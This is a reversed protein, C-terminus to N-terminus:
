LATTLQFRYDVMVIWGRGYFAVVTPIERAHLLAPTLANDMCPIGLYLAALLLPARVLFSDLWIEVLMRGLFGDVIEEAVVQGDVVEVAQAQGDEEAAEM